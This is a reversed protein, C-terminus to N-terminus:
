TIVKRVIAPVRAVDYAKDLFFEPGPEKCLQTYYDNTHNTLVIVKRQDDTEKTRKLVEMGSKGPLNIDPSIM